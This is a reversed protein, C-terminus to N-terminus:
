TARPARPTSRARALNANYYRADGTVEKGAWPPLTVRADARPLEVEAVVLGALRGHFEDVDWVRGGFRLRRRTKELLPKECMALLERADAAPLPYEFESRVAGKTLGKVTIWGRRGELRIRVTREPVTSLYGQRLLVGRGKRWARGVVLFKREIELGM